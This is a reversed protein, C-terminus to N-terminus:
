GSCKREITDPIHERKKPVYVIRWIGKEDKIHETEMYKDLMKVYESDEAAQKKIAKKLKRDENIKNVKDVIKPIQAAATNTIDAVFVGIIIGNAITAFMREFNKDTKKM